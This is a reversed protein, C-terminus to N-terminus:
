RAVQEAFEASCINLTVSVTDNVFLLRALQILNFICVMGISGGVNALRMLM